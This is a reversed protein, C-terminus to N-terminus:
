RPTNGGFAPKATAIEYLVAGFSFLDTRCRTRWRHGTGAVHLHLLRIGLTWVTQLLLSLDMLPSPNLLYQLDLRTKEESSHQDRLGHVQALGTMGLKVSLRQWQWESYCRVREPPESRPGVMNMRGQLVNWLQPLETVNLSELV